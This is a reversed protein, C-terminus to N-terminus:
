YKTPYSIQYFRSNLLTGNHRAILALKCRLNEFCTQVSGDNPNAFSREILYNIYRNENDFKTVLEMYRVAFHYFTFIILFDCSIVAALKRFRKSRGDSELNKLVSASVLFGSLGGGLHWMM